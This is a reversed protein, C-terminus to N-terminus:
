RGNIKGGELLGEIGKEPDKAGEADSKIDL